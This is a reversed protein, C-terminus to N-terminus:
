STAECTWDHTTIPVMVVSKGVPIPELILVPHDVPHQGTPCTPPGDGTCAAAGFAITVAAAVLIVRKMATGLRPPRGASLCVYTPDGHSGVAHSWLCPVTQVNEM